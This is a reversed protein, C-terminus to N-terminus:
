DFLIQGERTKAQLLRRELESRNSPHCALLIQEHWAVTASYGLHEAAAKSNDWILVFEEPTGFGGRLFDNLADFNGNWKLSLQLVRTFERATAELSTCQIGEIRFVPKPSPMPNAIM